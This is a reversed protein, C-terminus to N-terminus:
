LVSARSAQRAMSISRTFDIPLRDIEDRVVVAPHSSGVTSGLGTGWGARWRSRRYRGDPMAVLM